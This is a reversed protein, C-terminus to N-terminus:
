QISAPLGGILKSDFGKKASMEAAAKFMRHSETQALKLFRKKLNKLEQQPFFYFERALEHNEPDVEDGKVERKFFVPALM